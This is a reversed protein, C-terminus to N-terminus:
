QSEKRSIHESHRAVIMSHRRYPSVFCYMFRDKWYGLHSHWNYIRFGGHAGKVMRRSFRTPSFSVVIFRYRCASPRQGVLALRPWIFLCSIGTIICIDLVFDKKGLVTASIIFIGNGSSYARVFLVPKFGSISWSTHAPPCCVLFM